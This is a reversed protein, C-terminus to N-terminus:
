SKYWLLSAISQAKKYDEITDIEISPFKSIDEIFLQGGWKNIALNIADAAFKKNEGRTVYFDLAKILKKNFAKSLKTVGIFEGCSKDKNIQKGIELVKLKNNTIVNVEEEEWVSKQIATISSKKHNIIKKIIKPDFLVDANLYLIDDKLYNKALWLSYTPNTNAYKDNKIFIFNVKPHSKKLHNILKDAYFGVVVIIDRIKNNYLTEIQHDIIIKNGVKLLCKPTNNTLPRLRLSQGAALIIAKM